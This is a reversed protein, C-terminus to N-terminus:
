NCDTVTMAVTAPTTADAAITYTINCSAPTNAGPASFIVTTGASPTEVVFGDIFAAAQIGDIDPYGFDLTVTNGEMTISGTAGTQKKVIAQGHALSKASNIAGYLGEVSSQRADVQMAAFKPVAVASLIGLIVIVVILEILTFGKQNNM